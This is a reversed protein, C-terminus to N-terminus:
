EEKVHPSGTIPKPKKVKGWGCDCVVKATPQRIVNCNYTHGGYKDLQERLTAIEKNLPGPEDSPEEDQQVEIRYKTAAEKLELSHKQWWKDIANQEPWTAGEVM